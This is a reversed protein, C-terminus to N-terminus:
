VAEGYELLEDIIAWAAEVVRENDAEYQEPTRNDIYSTDIIVTTNGYRKTIHMPVNGRPIHRHEKPSPVVSM